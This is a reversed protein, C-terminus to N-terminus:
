SVGRFNNKSIIFFVLRFFYTLPGGGIWSPPPRAGKRTPGRAARQHGDEVIHPREDLFFDYALERSLVRGGRPPVKAFGSIIYFKRFLM